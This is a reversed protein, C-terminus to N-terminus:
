VWRTAESLKSRITDKALRVSEKWLGVARKWKGEKVATWTSEEFKVNKKQSFTSRFLDLFRLQLESGPVRADIPKYSGLLDSSETQQSLNVSILSHLCHRHHSHPFCYNFM